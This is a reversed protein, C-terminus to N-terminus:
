NAIVYLQKNSMQNALQLIWNSIDDETYGTIPSNVIGGKLDLLEIKDMIQNAYIEENFAIVTGLSDKKTGSSKGWSNWMKMVSDKNLNQLNDDLALSAAWPQSVMVRTIKQATTKDITKNKIIFGMIYVLSCIEPFSEPIKVTPMKMGSNKTTACCHNEIFQFAEKVYIDNVVENSIMAKGSLLRAYNRMQMTLQIVILSSSRSLKAIKIRDMFRARYTHINNLGIGAIVAEDVLISDSAKMFIESLMSDMDSSTFKDSINVVTNKKSTITAPVATLTSSLLKRPQKVIQTEAPKESEFLTDDEAKFDMTESGTVNESIWEELQDMEDFPMVTADEPISKKAVLMTTGDDIMYFKKEKTLYAYVTTM